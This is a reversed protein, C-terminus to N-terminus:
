LGAYTVPTWSTKAIGNSSSTNKTTIGIQPSSVYSATPWTSARTRTRDRDAVPGVRSSGGIGSYVTSVTIATSAVTASSSNTNRVPMKPVACYQNVITM